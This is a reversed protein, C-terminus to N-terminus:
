DREIYNTALLVADSLSVGAISHCACQGQKTSYKDGNRDHLGYLPRHIVVLLRQLLSGWAIHWPEPTKVLLVEVRKNELAYEVQEEM